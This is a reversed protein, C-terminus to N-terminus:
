LLCSYNTNAFAHLWYFIARFFKFILDFNSVSAFMQVIKKFLSFALSTAKPKCCVCVASLSEKETTRIAVLIYNIQGYEELLGHMLLYM